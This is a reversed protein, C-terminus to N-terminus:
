ADRPAKKFLALTYGRRFGMLVERENANVVRTRDGDVERMLYEPCYTYPPFMMGDNRWKELTAESCREIGAPKPPPRSRPIARTFTPLRLNPNLEAGPWGWGPELVVKLDEPEHNFRLREGLHSGERTFSPHDDVEISGWYPGGFGLCIARM